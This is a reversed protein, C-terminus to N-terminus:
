SKNRTKQWNKVREELGHFKDDFFGLVCYLTEPDRPM